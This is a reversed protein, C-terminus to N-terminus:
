ASLLLLGPSPEAWAHIMVGDWDNWWRRGSGPSSSTCDEHMWGM